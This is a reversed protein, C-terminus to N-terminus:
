RCWRWANSRRLGSDIGCQLRLVDAQELAQEEDAIDGVDDPGVDVVQGRQADILDIGVLQHELRADLFAQGAELLLAQDIAVAVQPEEQGVLLAIDGAFDAVDVDGGVFFPAQQAFQDEVLDQAALGLHAVLVGLAVVFEIAEEVASGPLVGGMRQGELHHGRQAVVVLHELSALHMRRLESPPPRAMMRRASPSRRSM